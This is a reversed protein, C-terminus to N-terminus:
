GPRGGGADGAGSSVRAEVPPACPASREKRAIVTFFGGERSGRLVMGSEVLFRELANGPPEPEFLRDRDSIPQFPKSRPICKVFQLGTEDLWRLVEGITHKTEHPHKYQDAFWARKRAESFDKNRLNPDLWLFRDGTMRFLIRRADTILRGYKHYLGVLVYGGPRALSAISQFGRFPDRTTLLVGNSIVLDFTGTKFAPRFLNMQIFRVRSLRHERAFRQGLRLSNECMDTAFVTRNHISLFNSLQGTGCGCEIVRAGPPVQEDLLRAFIGQRAREELSAVSDFDNYDPFPTKEYFEKVIETVTDADQDDTPWFLRPIGDSVPYHRECALCIM